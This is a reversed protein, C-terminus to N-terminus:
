PSGTMAPPVTTTVVSFLLTYPISSTVPRFFHDTDIPAGHGGETMPHPSTPILM